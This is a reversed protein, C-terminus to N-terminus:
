DAEGERRIFRWEGLMRDSDESERRQLEFIAEFNVPEASHHARLWGKVEIEGFLPSGPKEDTFYEATLYTMGAKDILVEHETSNVTLSQSKEKLGRTSYSTPPAIRINEFKKEDPRGQPRFLIECRHFPIVLTDSSYTVVYVKMSLNWQYAGSQSIGAIARQLEVKGDIIELSPKKQTPYLLKILDSRRASRTSNAERWPVEHTIIGTSDPIRIVFPSRETEFVLAVVTKGNYPVSLSILNPALLQDFRSRVKAFWISLEEFDAGVVGKKEDIGILWMIPEGRAANAHAAIRRAARFHDRPWEAKLEVTDDEIPQGKELREIIDLVKFEIEQKKM